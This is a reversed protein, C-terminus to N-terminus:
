KNQKWAVLKGKGDRLYLSGGSNELNLAFKSDAGPQLIQESFIFKERGEGKVLWGTINCSFDCSNKISNSDITICPACQNESKECLNIGKDICIGWADILDDSYKDKESYFYYNAFGNEVMKVNVNSGNLHIYALIRGYKDQRERTFELIVTKNLVLNELFKKAEGYYFEGREPTNIGLLRVSNNGIDVTDGDIVREVFVSQSEDLFNKVLNDLFSYNIIFLVLLLVILLKKEIKRKKKGKRRVM